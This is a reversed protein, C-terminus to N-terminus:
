SFHDWSRNRYAMIVQRDGNGQQAAAQRKRGLVIDTGGRTPSAGKRM